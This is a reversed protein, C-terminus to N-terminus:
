KSLIFSHINRYIIIWCPQLHSLPRPKAKTESSSPAWSCWVLVREHNGLAVECDMASLHDSVSLKVCSAIVITQLISCLCLELELSNAIVQVSALSAKGLSCKRFRWNNFKSFFAKEKYQRGGRYYLVTEHANGDGQTLSWLLNVLSSELSLFGGLVSDSYPFNSRHSPETPFPSQM